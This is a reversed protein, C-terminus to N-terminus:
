KSKFMGREKTVEFNIYTFLLILAVSIISSFLIYTKEMPSGLLISLTSEPNLAVGIYKSYLGARFDPNNVLLAKAVVSILSVGSAALGCVRLSHKDGWLRLYIYIVIVSVLAVVGGILTWWLFVRARRMALIEVDDFMPDQFDGNQEYIQLEKNELSNFYAAFEKGLETSSLSSDIQSIAESDNFHYAYAGSTRLVGNGSLTLIAIPLLIILLAFLVARLKKM